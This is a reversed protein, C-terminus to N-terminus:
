PTDMAASPEDAGRLVFSENRRPEGALEIDDMRALVREFTIRDGAAAARRHLLPHGLRLSTAGYSTPERDLPVPRADRVTRTATPRASCCSCSAARPITQGRSRARRRREHPVPGSRRTSACPRRSPPRSSAPDARLRGDARAARAAPVADARDPQDHDRPRRGPAPLRPPPVRRAHAGRREALGAHQERRRASRRTPASHRALGHGRRSATTSPTRRQRTPRRLRRRDPRRRRLAGASSIERDEPRVGLLEGIVIAPFPPTCSSSTAKAWRSSTTSCSTPSRRWRPELRAIAPLFGVAAHPPPPRPRTTPRASCGPRRTSSARATLNGWLAPQKLM